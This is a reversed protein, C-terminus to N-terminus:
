CEKNREEYMNEHKDKEKQKELDSSQKYHSTVGCSCNIVELFLENVLLLMLKSAACIM